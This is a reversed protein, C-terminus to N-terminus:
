QKNANYKDIEKWTDHELDFMIEYTNNFEEQTLASEM